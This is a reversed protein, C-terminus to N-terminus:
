SLPNYFVTNGKAPKRHKNMVAMINVSCNFCPFNDDPFRRSVRTVM